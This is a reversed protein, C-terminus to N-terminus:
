SSVSRSPRLASHRRASLRNDYAPLPPLKKGKGCAFTAHEEGEPLPLAEDGCDCAVVAAVASGDAAFSTAHSIFNWNALDVIVHTAGAREVRGQARRLVQLVRAEGVGLDRDSIFIAFGQFCFGQNSDTATAWCRARL